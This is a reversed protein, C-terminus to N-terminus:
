RFLKDININKVVSTEIYEIQYKNHKEIFAHVEDNDVQRELDSKNGVLIVYFYKNHINELERIWNDLNKFSNKNNLDFVLVINNTVSLYNKIIFRFYERGSTDWLHLKFQKNDYEIITYLFDVGITPRNDISMDDTYSKIISTKGVSEDGLFIFKYIINYVNGNNKKVMKFASKSM